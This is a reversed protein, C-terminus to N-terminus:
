PGGLVARASEVHAEPVLLYDTDYTSVAFVPIRNAALVSAFGALVGTENLPIPGDVQFARWGREVAIAEGPVVAEPCVISLEGSSRTVSVLDEAGAAQLAAEAAEGRSPAFRCLAYRGPLLTLRRRRVSTGANV